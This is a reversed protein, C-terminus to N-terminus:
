GPAGEDCVLVAKVPPTGQTFTAVTNIAVWTAECAPVTEVQKKYSGTGGINGGSTDFWPADTARLAIEQETTYQVKINKGNEWNGSVIVKCEGVIKDPIRVEAARGTATHDITVAKLVRM